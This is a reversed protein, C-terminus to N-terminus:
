IRHKNVLWDSSFFGGWIVIVQVYSDGCVDVNLTNIMSTSQISPHVLGTKPHWQKKQKKNQRKTEAQQNSTFVGGGPLVNSTCNVWLFESLGQAVNFRVAVEFWCLRQISRHAVNVGAVVPYHYLVHTHTHIQMKLIQTHVTRTNYMRGLWYLWWMIIIMMLWWWKWM